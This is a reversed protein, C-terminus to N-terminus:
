VDAERRKVPEERSLTQAVKFMKICLFGAITEKEMGRKPLFHKEQQLVHIVSLCHHCTFTVLYHLTPSPLNSVNKCAKTDCLGISLRRNAKLTITM